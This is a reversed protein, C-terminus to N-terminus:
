KLEKVNSEIQTDLWEEFDGYVTIIANKADETILKQSIEIAKNKAIEAAEDSFKGEAKLADVYTQSVTLVADIVVNTSSKIYEVLKANNIGSTIKAIQKKILACIFTALATACGTVIIYLVNTLIEKM